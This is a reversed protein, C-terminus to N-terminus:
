EMVVRAFWPLDRWPTKGDGRKFARNDYDYALEGKKLTTNLIRWNRASDRRILLYVDGVCIEYDQLEDSDDM